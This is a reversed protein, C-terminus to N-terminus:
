GFDFVMSSMSLLCLDNINAGLVKGDEKSATQNSNQALNLLVQTGYEASRHCLFMERLLDIERAIETSAGVASVLSWNATLHVISSALVISPFFCPTRRLSYLGKYSYILSVIADAANNCVEKPSINSGVFHLEMVPYFLLVIAFYFYMSQYRCNLM